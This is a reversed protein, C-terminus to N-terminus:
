LDRFIIPPQRTHLYNLVNCLEIGIALVEDIPLKGGMRQLYVDLTEGAIFDM